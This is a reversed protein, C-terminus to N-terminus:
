SLFHLHLDTLSHELHVLTKPVSNESELLKYFLLFGIQGLALSSTLNLLLLQM